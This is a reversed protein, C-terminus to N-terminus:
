VQAVGLHERLVASHRDLIADFAAVVEDCHADTIPLCLAFMGRRASWFGADVLEFFLLERMLAQLPRV